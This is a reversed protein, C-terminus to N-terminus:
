LGTSTKLDWPGYVGTTICKRRVEEVTYRYVKSPDIKGAAYYLWKPGVFNRGNSRDYVM